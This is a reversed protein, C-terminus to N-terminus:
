TVTRASRWLISAGSSDIAWGTLLATRRVPIKQLDVSNAANPPFVVVRGKASAARSALAGTQIVFGPAVRHFAMGNYVGAAALRMFQRVTDPAKDVFFELTIPGDATDLVARYGALQAAAEAVFPEPPTDRITVRAIEAREQAAGGQAPDAIAIGRRRPDTLERRQCLM